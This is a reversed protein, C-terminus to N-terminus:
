MPEADCAVRVRIAVIAVLATAVTSAPPVGGFTTVTSPYDGLGCVGARSVRYSSRMLVRRLPGPRPNAAIAPAVATSAPHRAVPGSKREVVPVAAVRTSRDATTGTEDRRVEGSGVLAARLDNRREVPQRPADRLGQGRDDRRDRRDAHGGDAVPCEPGRHDPVAGVADRAEVDGRAGPRGTHVLRIPEGVFFRYPGSLNEFQLRRSPGGHVDRDDAHIATVGRCAGVHVPTREVVRELGILESIVLGGNEDEVIAARGAVCSQERCPRTVHSSGKAARGVALPM